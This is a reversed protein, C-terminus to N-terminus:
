LGPLNPVRAIWFYLKATAKGLGSFAGTIFITRM